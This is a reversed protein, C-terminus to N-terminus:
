EDDEVTYLIEVLHFVLRFLDEPTKAAVFSWDKIRADDEQERVCLWGDYGEDDLANLLKAAARKVHLRNEDM